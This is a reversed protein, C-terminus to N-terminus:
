IYFLGKKQCSWLKLYLSEILTQSKPAKQSNVDNKVDRFITSHSCINFQTVAAEALEYGYSYM